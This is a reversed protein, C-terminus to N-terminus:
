KAPLELAIREVQSSVKAVGVGEGVVNALVVVTVHDDPFQTLQANFGPLDGDHDVKRHGELSGLEVGYGYERGTISPYQATIAQGSTRGDNLKGPTTMAALSDPKLVKGGFLAANWRALDSATSRMAGAGAVGTMSLFEANAFQGPGTADYGAARGPVIQAEDDLATRTMGLPDFFRTKLVTALPQGSVKEVIAGLLFYAANSYRYNTGPEFDQTKPLGALYAVTQPTTRRALLEATASADETYNHIGSTHHLMQALTIDAARPFDPYFKVLTDNLSLKGDEAMVLVAAATFQKTVSGIRFVTDNAVPVGLELNALGYGRVLIPAGDKYVAIQLGPSEGAGISARAARDIDAAMAGMDAALTPTAHAAAVSLVAFSMLWRRTLHTM